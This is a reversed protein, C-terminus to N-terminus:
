TTSSEFDVDKEFVKGFFRARKRAAELEVGAEGRQRVRFRVVGETVEVGVDRV